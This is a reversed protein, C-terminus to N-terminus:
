FPVEDEDPAYMEMLGKMGYANTKWDFPYFLVSVAIEQHLYLFERMPDSGLFLNLAAKREKTMEWSLVDKCLHVVAHLNGGLSPYLYLSKIGYTAEVQGLNECFTQVALASDLDLLLIYESDTTFLLDCGPPVEVEDNGVRYVNKGEVWLKTKGDSRGLLEM